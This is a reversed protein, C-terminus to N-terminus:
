PNHVFTLNKNTQIATILEDKTSIEISNADEPYSINWNALNITISTLSTCGSFANNEITTVSDPVNIQTISSNMFAGESITVVDDTLVIRSAPSDEYVYRGIYSIGDPIFITEGGSQKTDAYLMPFSSDFILGDSDYDTGNFSHTLGINPNNIEVTCNFLGTLANGFSQASNSTANGSIVLTELNNCGKFFKEKTLYDLNPPLIFSKLNSCAIPVSLYNVKVCDSMDVNIDVDTFKSLTDVFKQENGSETTYDSNLNLTLGRPYFERTFTEYNIKNVANIDLYWKGRISSGNVSLYEDIKNQPITNNTIAEKTNDTKYYYWGGFKFGPRKAPEVLVIDKSKDFSQTENDICEEDAYMTFRVYEKLPLNITMTNFEVQPDGYLFTNWSLTVQCFKCDSTLVGDAAVQNYESNLFNYNIAIMPQDEDIMDYYSLEESFGNEFSVNFTINSKIKEDEINDNIYFSCETMNLKPIIQTIRDFTNTYLDITVENVVDAVINTETFGYAICKEDEDYAYGKIKCNGENVKEIFFESGAPETYDKSKGDQIIVLKYFSVDSETYSSEIFRSNKQSGPLKVLLSTTEKIQSCSLCIFSAILVFLVTIKIKM